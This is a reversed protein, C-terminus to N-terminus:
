YISLEAERRSCDYEKMLAIVDLEKTKDVMAGKTYRIFRPAEPVRDVLIKFIAPDTLHFLNQNIESVIHICEPVQSFFRLIVRMGVSKCTHKNYEIPEKLNIANLVDTLTLKEKKM